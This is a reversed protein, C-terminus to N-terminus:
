NLEMREMRVLFLIRNPKTEWRKGKLELRSIYDDLTSVARSIGKFVPTETSKHNKITLSIM